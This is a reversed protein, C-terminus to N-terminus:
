NGQVLVFYPIEQGVEEGSIVGLVLGEPLLVRDLRGAGGQVSM